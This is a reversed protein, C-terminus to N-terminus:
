SLKPWLHTDDGVVVTHRVIEGIFSIQEVVKQQGGYNKGEQYHSDTSVEPEFETAQNDGGGSVCIYWYGPLYLQNGRVYPQTGDNV